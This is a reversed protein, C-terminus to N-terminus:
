IFQREALFDALRAAAAAPDEGATLIMRARACLVTDGVATAASRRCVAEPALGLRGISLTRVLKRRAEVIAPFPPYGPAPAHGGVSVVVPPEAAREVLWGGEDCLGIIEDIDTGGVTLSDACAILPVGLREAVMAPIAPLNPKESSAAGLVLDFGVHRLAAAYVRSLALVDTTALEEDLVHVGDDAGLALAARLAAVCTSPGATLVSVNVDIRRRAVHLAAEVARAQAEDLEGGPEVLVVIRM